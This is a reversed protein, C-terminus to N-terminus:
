ALALRELFEQGQARSPRLLEPARSRGEQAEGTHVPASAHIKATFLDQSVPREGFHLFQQKVQHRVRRAGLRLDTQRQPGISRGLLEAVTQAYGEVM